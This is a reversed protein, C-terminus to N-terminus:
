GPRQMLRGLLRVGPSNALDQPSVLRPNPAYALSVDVGSSRMLGRNDLQSLLRERAQDLAADPIDSGDEFLAAGSRLAPRKAGVSM